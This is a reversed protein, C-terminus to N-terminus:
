VKGPYEEADPRRYRQFPSWRWSFCDHAALWNQGAFEEGGGALRWQLFKQFFNLGIGKLWRSWNEV